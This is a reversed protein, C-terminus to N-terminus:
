GKSLLNKIESYSLIRAGSSDVIGIELTQEDVREKTEKLIDVATSIADKITNIGGIKNVLSKRIEDSYMGVATARYSFYTSSPDTSFLHIGASDIGGILFAVGFPRVGAHQTYSHKVDSIDRVLREVPIPEGYTYTYSQATERAWNLLIRADGTIGAFGAIIHNDIIMIKEPADIIRLPEYRHIAIIAIGEPTKIGVVPMGSKVTKTAYEVQMIRGEPSFISITSDYGIGEREFM